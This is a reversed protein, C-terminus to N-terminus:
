KMLRAFPCHYSIICLIFCVLLCLQHIVNVACKFLESCICSIYFCHEHHSSIYYLNISHDALLHFSDSLYIINSIEVPQGLTLVASPIPLWCCVQASFCVATRINRSTTNCFQIWLARPSEKTGLIIASLAQAIQTLHWNYDKSLTLHTHPM